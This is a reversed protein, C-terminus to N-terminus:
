DAEVMYSIQYEKGGATITAVQKSSTAASTDLGKISLDETYTDDCMTYYKTEEWSDSEAYAFRGRTEAKTLVLTDGVSLYVTEDGDYYSTSSSGNKKFQFSDLSYVIRSDSPDLVEYAASYSYEKKSFSSTKTITATGKGVVSTDILDKTKPYSPSSYRAEYYTGGFFVETETVSFSENEDGKLIPLFDAKASVAVNAKDYVAYRLVFSYDDGSAMDQTPSGKGSIKLYHIGETATDFSAPDINFYLSNYNSHLVNTVNCSVQTSTVATGKAFLLSYNVSNAEASNRLIFNYGYYCDKPVVLYKYTPNLISGDSLTVKLVASHIGYTDTKCASYDVTSITPEEDDTSLSPASFGISIRPSALRLSFNDATFAYGKEVKEIGYGRVAYPVDLSAYKQAIPYAFSTLATMADSLKSSKDAAYADMATFLTTLDGGFTTVLKTIGTQETSSLLTFVHKVYAYMAEMADNKVTDSSDASTYDMISSLLSSPFSTAAKSLFKLVYALNQYGATDLLSLLNRVIATNSAFDQVDGEEMGDVSNDKAMLLDTLFTIAKKLEAGDMDGLFSIINGAKHILSSLGSQSTVRKYDVLYAPDSTFPFGLRKMSLSAPKKVEKSKRSTFYDIGVLVEVADINTFLGNLLPYLTDKFFAEYDGSFLIDNFGKIDWASENEYFADMGAFFSTMSSDSGLATKAAEYDTKNLFACNILNPLYSKDDDEDSAKAIAKYDTDVFPHAFVEAGLSSIFSRVQNYFSTSLAKVDAYSSSSTFVDAVAEYASIAGALADVQASTMYTRRITELQARNEEPIKGFSSLNTKGGARLLAVFQDDTISYVVKETPSSSSPTSTGSDTTPTSSSSPTTNAHCGLMSFALLSVLLSKKKM